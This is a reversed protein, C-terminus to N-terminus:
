LLFTNGVHMSLYRINLINIIYDRQKIYKLIHKDNLSPYYTTAYRTFNLSFIKRYKEHFVYQFEFDSYVNEDGLPM